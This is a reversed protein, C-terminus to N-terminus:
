RWVPVCKSSIACHFRVTYLHVQVSPDDMVTKVGEGGHRYEAWMDAHGPTTVQQGISKVLCHPGWDSDPHKYSMTEDCICKIDGIVSAVVCVCM